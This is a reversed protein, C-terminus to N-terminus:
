ARKEADAVPSDSDSNYARNCNLLPPRYAAPMERFLTTYPSIDFPIHEPVPKPLVERICRLFRGAVRLEHEDSVISAELEWAALEQQCGYTQGDIERDWRIVMEGSLERGGPMWRWDTRVDCDPQSRILEAIRHLSAHAVPFLAKGLDDRLKWRQERILRVEARSRYMAM